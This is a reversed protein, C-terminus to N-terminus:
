GLFFLPGVEFHEWQWARTDVTGLHSLYHNSKAPRSIQGQSFLRRFESFTAHIGTGRSVNKSFRVNKTIVAIGDQSNYNAGNKAGLTSRGM